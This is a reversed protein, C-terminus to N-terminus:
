SLTPIWKEISAQIIKNTFYGFTETDRYLRACVPKILLTGPVPSSM